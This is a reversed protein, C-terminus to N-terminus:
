FEISLSILNLLFYMFSTVLKLKLYFLKNIYTEVPINASLNPFYTITNFTFKSRVAIKWVARICTGGISCFLRLKM